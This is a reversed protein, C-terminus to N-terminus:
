YETDINQAAQDIVWQRIKMLKEIGLIGRLKAKISEVDSGKDAPIGKKFLPGILNNWIEDSEQLKQALQESGNPARNVQRVKEVLDDLAREFGQLSNTIDNTIWASYKKRIMFLKHANDRIKETAGEAVLTSTISHVEAM